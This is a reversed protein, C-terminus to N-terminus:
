FDYFFNCGHVYSKSGIFVRHIFFNFNDFNLKDEIYDCLNNSVIYLYGNKSVGLTDPWIMDSSNAITVLKDEISTQNKSNKNDVLHFLFHDEIKYVRGKEIDTLYINGKDDSTLGDSASIKSGFQIIQEEIWGNKPDDDQYV